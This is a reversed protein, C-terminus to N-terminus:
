NYTNIYIWPIELTATSNAPVAGKGIWGETQMVFHMMQAPVANGTYTHTYIGDVTASVQTPTWDLFFTHYQHDNFNMPFPDPTSGVFTHPGTSTTTNLSGAYPNASFDPNTEPFDVENTWQNTKPWLLFAMKYGSGVSSVLRASFGVQGYLFDLKGNGPLPSAAYSTGNETHMNFFASGNSASLVKDAAWVTSKNTALGSYEGFNKYTTTFTGLPADTNFDETFARTYGSPVATPMVPVPGLPSIPQVSCADVGLAGASSTPGTTVVSLSLSSGTQSVVYRVGETSWTASTPQTIQQSVNKGAPTTETVVLTAPYYPSGSRVSCSVQLTDGSTLGSTVSGVNVGVPVATASSSKVQALYTGDAAAPVAPASAASVVSSASYGVLSGSEFSQFLLPGGTNITPGTALKVINCADVGMGGASSTPGTTFASLSVSSGTQSVVYRLSESSWSNTTPQTIQQSVTTGAPTTETVVVTVPYSPLATRVSCGVQLTDGATLGSVSGANVGVPVAAASTSKVQALYSGDAAAPVTPAGTLIVVSPATYGSFSGSEFSQNLLVQNSTSSTTAAVAHSTLTEAAVLGASASIAVCAAIFKTRRRRARHSPLEYV